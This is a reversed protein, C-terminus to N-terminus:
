VMQELLHENRLRNTEINQLVQAMTPPPLLDDEANNNHGGYGRGRRNGGAM